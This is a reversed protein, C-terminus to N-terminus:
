TDLCFSKKRRSARCQYLQPKLHQIGDHFIWPAKPPGVINFPIIYGVYFAPQKQKLETATQYTLTHLIHGEHLIAEQYRKVFRDM